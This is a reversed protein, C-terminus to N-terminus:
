AQKQLFQFFSFINAPNERLREKSYSQLTGISAMPGSGACGPQMGTPTSEMDARAISGFLRYL